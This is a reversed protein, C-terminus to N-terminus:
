NIFRKKGEEETDVKKAQAQQELVTVNEVRITFENELSLNRHKSRVVSPPSNVLSKIRGGVGGVRGACNDNARLLESDSDNCSTASTLGMKDSAELSDALLAWSTCEILRQSESSYLNKYYNVRVTSADVLVGDTVTPSAWLVTAAILVLVGPGMMIMKIHKSNSFSVAIEEGM